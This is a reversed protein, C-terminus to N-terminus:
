FPCMIKVDYKAVIEIAITHGHFRSYMEHKAVLTLCSGWCTKHRLIIQLGNFLGIIAVIDGYSAGDDKM